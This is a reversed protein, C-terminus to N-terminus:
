VADGDQVAAPRRLLAILVQWGLPTLKFRIPSPDREVLKRVVLQTASAASVGVSGWNTGSALCFLLVREQVALRAAYEAPTTPIPNYLNV